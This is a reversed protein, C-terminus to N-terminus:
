CLELVLAIGVVKIHARCAARAGREIDGAQYGCLAHHPLFESARRQFERLGTRHQCPARRRWSCFIVIGANASARM